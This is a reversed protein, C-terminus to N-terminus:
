HVNNAMRHTQDEPSLVRVPSTWPRFDRETM